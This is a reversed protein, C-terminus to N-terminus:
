NFFNYQMVVSGDPLTVSQITKTTYNFTQLSGQVEYTVIGGVPHGPIDIEEKYCLTKFGRCRIYISSTPAPPYSAVGKILIVQSEVTEGKKLTTSVPDGPGGPLSSAAFTCVCFALM